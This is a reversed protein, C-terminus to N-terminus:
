ALLDANLQQNAWLAVTAVVLVTIALRRMRASQPLLSGIVFWRGTTLGYIARVIAAAGIAAILFVLPNYHWAQAFNGRALFMTARTGGCLPCMIGLRHLPGNLDVPPLGWRGLAGAAVFGAIVLSTFVAATDKTACRLRTGRLAVQTM